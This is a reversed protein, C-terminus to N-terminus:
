RNFKISLIVHVKKIIELLVGFHKSRIKKKNDRKFNLVILATSRKSRRSKIKDAM